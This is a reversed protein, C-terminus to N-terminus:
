LKGAKGHLFGKEGRLYGEDGMTHKQALNLQHLDDKNGKSKPLSLRHNIEKGAERCQPLSPLQPAPKGPPSCPQRRALMPSKVNSM